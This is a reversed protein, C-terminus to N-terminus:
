ESSGLCTVRGDTTSLYLRGNAAAMGDWVVPSPLPREGVKSGDKESCVWIAGGLRGEYAAHPDDEPIEKPMVGLVLHDGAKLMARPRVPLDVQWASGSPAGEIGRKFLRYDGFTRRRHTRQAGWVTDDQHVLMLATPSDSRYPAPQGQDQAHFRSSGGKHRAAPLRGHDGTGLGWDSRHHEEDDLLSSTSFLQRSRGAQGELARTFMMHRVFVNTGDSVLVDSVGGTISYTDSRDPQSFTKYDTWLHGKIHVAETDEREEYKPHKSELQKEHLVKGTAPDLGYLRMGGDLWTSRGAGAYAVGDLVLVSGHVPWPSELRDFAV